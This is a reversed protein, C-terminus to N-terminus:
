TKLCLIEINYYNDYDHRKVNDIVFHNPNYTQIIVRGQKKGRGARGSAQELINFAEENAKFDQFYLAIDANLAGVLTVNEFDLGKTIMQTGILIDAEHNKFARFSNEYDEVKNTTDRDVRLVRASPLLM